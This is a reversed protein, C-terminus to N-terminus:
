GKVKLRMIGAKIRNAINLLERAQLASSIKALPKKLENAFELRLLEEHWRRAEAEIPKIRLDTYDVASVTIPFLCCSQDQYRKLLRPLEMDRIFQSALFSTTVLLVAFGAHDIADEIRLRWKEGANILRDDWVTNLSNRGLVLTLVDTVSLLWDGDEHSYSVFINGGRETSCLVDRVQTSQPRPVGLGKKVLQFAPSTPVRPQIMGDHDGPVIHLPTASFPQRVSAMRVDDDNEGVIVELHFPYGDRFKSNWDVRLREIFRSGHAMDRLQANLFSWKRARHSGTSPTGFFFAHTTRRLIDDFDVLARQLILGGASHAIFALSEYEAIPPLIMNPYLLECQNDLSPEESCPRFLVTTRYGLSFIDWDALDPDDLLLKAMPTWVGVAGLLGHVFIIARQNGIRRFPLFYRPKTM